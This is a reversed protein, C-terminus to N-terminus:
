PIRIDLFVIEDSTFLRMPIAWRGCGSTTYSLCPPDGTVAKGYAYRSLIRHLLNGPFSQGNHVHGCLVLDAGAEALAPIQKPRHDLVVLPADKPLERLLEEPSKRGSPVESPVESPVGTPSGSPPVPHESGNKAPAKEGRFLDKRGALYLKKNEKGNESLSITVTEDSLTRIGCAALFAAPRPDDAGAIVDHNGECFFIGYPLAKGLASLAAKLKERKRVALDDFAYDFFDGAILLLDPAEGEIKRFVRLFFRTDTFYGFHLDSLLAARLHPRNGAAARPSLFANKEKKDAKGGLVCSIRRIRPFQANIFGLLHILLFLGACLAAFLLVTERGAPLLGCWVTLLGAAGCFFICLLLYLYPTLLASSLGHLRRRTARKSGAAAFTSFFLAIPPLAFLLAFFGAAVPFVPFSVSPLPALLAALALAACVVCFLYLFLFASFFSLAVYWKKLAARLESM